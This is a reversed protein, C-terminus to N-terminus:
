FSAGGGLTFFTLGTDPLVWFALDLMRRDLRGIQTDLSPFVISAVAGITPDVGASSANGLLDSFQFGLRPGLFGGIGKQVLNGQELKSFHLFEYGATVSAMAMIAFAGNDDSYVAGGAYLGALALVDIGHWNGGELGPFKPRFGVLVSIGGDVGLGWIHLAPNSSAAGLLSGGVYGRVTIRGLPVPPAPVVVEEASTALGQSHASPAPLKYYHQAPLGSSPLAAGSDPPPAACIEGFPILGTPCQPIGVCTQRTGSWVQAPWCCHGATDATAQEGPPCEATACTEGKIALGAPCQPEGVCAQRTKAWAQGPWCCHGATDASVLQGPICTSTQMAPQASASASLCLAGVFVGSQCINRM